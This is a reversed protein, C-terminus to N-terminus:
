NLTFADVLVYGGDATRGALALPLPARYGRPDLVRLVLRYSGPAVDAPVTPTDRHETAADAPLFRYLAMDSAGRWVVEGADTQLEFTVDWHEYTPAVGLNRWALTIPLAQGARASVPASGGELVLRYGMARSAAQVNASITPTVATCYNSNGVMTAHYLRVQEELLGMDTGSCEPEGLIPSTKWRDMIALRFEPGGDFSRDNEDLYAHLYGADSAWQDRRWGLPGVENEADLVYQAIAPPNYTNNFYEADFAGILAALQFRPYNEVHSDVIRRLTAVTPRLGVPWSGPTGDPQNASDIFGAHHWEGYAGFGRIDIYGIVDRYAVGAYSGTELLSNIAANLADFRDLYHDSNYNPLWWDADPNSWDTAGHNAPDGADQMLEHLYLPYSMGRGGDTPSPNVEDGPYVTMLGFSLKQGRDIADHLADELRSFDYDGLTPELVAWTYFSRGYVDLAPAEDADSPLAVEDNGHWSEGGRGPARVDVDDPLAVFSLPQVDDALDADPGPQGDPGDTVGGGGGCAAMLGLALVGATWGSATTM